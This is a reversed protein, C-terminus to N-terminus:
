GERLKRLRALARVRREDPDLGVQLLASKLAADDVSGGDHRDHLVQAAKELLPMEEARSVWSEPAPPLSRLFEDIDDDSDRQVAAM